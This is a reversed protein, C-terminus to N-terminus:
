FNEFEDSLGDSYSDIEVNNTEVKSVTKDIENKLDADKKKVDDADKNDSANIKFFAIAEKLHQAQIAMSEANASMESASSTNKQIVKTMEQISDNIQEAGANQELSANNIEQVLVATKKIDPTIETLIKGSEEAVELSKTIHGIIEDAASQSNEALKRIESAVVAFGKGQKGARAAEIAANIALIDTKEAIDNIVSIKEAIKGFAEMTIEFSNNTKNIGEAAKLAISETIKANDTNQSIIAVMEEMSASIEEASAAQENSGSAIGSSISSLHKSDKSISKSVVLINDIVEVLKDKMSELAVELKNKTGAGIGSDKRLEGQAIEQAYDVGKKFSDVMKRLSDALKGIEDKRNLDISANFDGNAVKDAFGVVKALQGSISKYLAFAIVIALLIGLVCIIIMMTYSKNSSSKLRSMENVMRIHVMEEVDDIENTFSDFISDFEQEVESGVESESKSINLRSRASQKVQEIKIIVNKVKAQIEKEQVATFVEGEKEGGNLIANCYWVAEDFLGWVIKIDESEDGAIYEEFMLHAELGLIKAEKIADLAPAEVGGILYAEEGISKTFYISFLGSIAVILAIALFGFFLKQKISLKFKTM